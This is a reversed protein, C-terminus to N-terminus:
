MSDLDVPDYANDTSQPSPLWSIVLYSTTNPHGKYSVNYGAAILQHQLWVICGNAPDTAEARNIHHRDLWDFLETISILAFFWGSKARTEIRNVVFTLLEPFASDPTYRTDSWTSEKRMEDVHKMTQLM